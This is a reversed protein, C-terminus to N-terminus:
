CSWDKLSGPCRAPAEFGSSSGTVTHAPAAPRPAPPAQTTSSTNTLSIVVAATLGAMLTVLVAIVWTASLRPQRIGTATIATM